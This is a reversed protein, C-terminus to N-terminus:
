GKGGKGKGGEGKDGKQGKGKDGKDKGDKGNGSQDGSIEASSSQDVSSQGKGKKGSGKKGQGPQESSSQVGSSPTSSSQIGSSEASVNPTTSDEVTGSQTHGTDSESGSLADISASTSTSDVAVIRAPSNTTVTQPFIDTGSPKDRDSTGQGLHPANDSSTVASGSVPAATVIDAASAVTAVPLYFLDTGGVNAPDGAYQEGRPEDDAPSSTVADISAPVVTAVVPVTSLDTDSAMNTGDVDRIEKREDNSSAGAFADADTPVADVVAGGAAPAIDTAPVDPQVALAEQLVKCAKQARAPGSDQLDACVQLAVNPPLSEILDGVLHSSAFNRIFSLAEAKSQSRFATEYSDIESTEGTSRGVCLALALVSVGAAYLLRLGQPRKERESM